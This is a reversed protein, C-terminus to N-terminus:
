LPESLKLEHVIATQTDPVDGGNLFTALAGGLVGFVFIAILVFGCRRDPTTRNHLLSM